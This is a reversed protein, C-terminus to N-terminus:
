PRTNEDRARRAIADCTECSPPSGVEREFEAAERPTLKKWREGTWTDSGRYPAHGPLACGIQGRESWYLIPTKTTTKTTTM